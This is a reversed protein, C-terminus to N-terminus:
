CETKVTDDKVSAHLSGVTVDLLTYLSNDLINQTVGISDYGFNCKNKNYM